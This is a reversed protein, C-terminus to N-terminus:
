EVKAPARPGERVAQRPLNTERVFQRLDGQLEKIRSLERTNDQGAAGLVGARRKLARIDREMKRQLQSAEYQGMTRGKYTVQKKALADRFHDNYIEQSIGPFFPYFSHRCNWGCLGAGTGYGTETFFNPYKPDFGSRSFIRGQWSEHNMPGEGLNRAGFHASTQVLDQQMDDAHKIQLNGVTQQVGTLLARRMAVDIQDERGSPYLVTKLGDDALKRLGARIAQTYSMAGSSVQMYMIDSAHIFKQQAAIATTMTLNEFVGQTKRLGAALVEVMAPSLNLPLPSLGAAKYIQDDFKIAHVGAAKFLKRLEARSIGTLRAVRAIADTYVAGAETIRQMQWAASPTVMQMKIIRRAIDNLISQIFEEYLKMLPNALDDLVDPDLM